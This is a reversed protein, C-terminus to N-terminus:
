DASDATEVSRKGDDGNGENSNVGSAGDPKGSIGERNLRFSQRFLEAGVKLLSLDEADLSKFKDLDVKGEISATGDDTSLKSIQKGILFCDRAM